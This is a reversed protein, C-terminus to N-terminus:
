EGRWIGLMRGMAAIAFCLALYVTLGYLGRDAVPLSGLVRAIIIM